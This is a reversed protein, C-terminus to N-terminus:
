SESNGACSILTKGMYCYWGWKDVSPWNVDSSGSDLSWAALIYLVTCHVTCYLATFLATCHLSCHLSCHLVTRPVTCYLAIFYLVTCHLATCKLVTCHLTTYCHLLKCCRAACHLTCYLATCCRQTCLLIEGASPDFLPINPQTIYVQAINAAWKAVQCRSILGSVPQCEFLNKKLNM